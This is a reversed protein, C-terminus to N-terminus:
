AVSNGTFASKTEPKLLVVLAWIGIPFGVFALFGSLITIIASTIALGHKRLNMMQLAGYMSFLLAPLSLVSLTQVARLIVRQQESYIPFDQWMMLRFLCIALSIGASIMIAVAPPKLSARVSVDTV